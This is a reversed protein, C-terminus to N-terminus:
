GHFFFVDLIRCMFVDGADLTMRVDARLFVTGTFCCAPNIAGVTMGLDGFIIELATMSLCIELLVRIGRIAGVAVGFM